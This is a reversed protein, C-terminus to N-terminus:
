RTPGAEQPDGVMTREGLGPAMPWPATQLEPSLTDFKHKELVEVFLKFM